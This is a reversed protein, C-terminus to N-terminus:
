DGKEQETKRPEIKNETKHSNFNNQNQKFNELITQCKSNFHSLIDPNENIVQEVSVDDDGIIDSWSECVSLNKRNSSEKETEKIREKSKIRSDSQNGPARDGQNEDPPIQASAAQPSSTTTAVVSASSLPQLSATNEQITEYSNNVENKLANVLGAVKPSTPNKSKVEKIEDLRRKAFELHLVPEEEQSSFAVRIVEQSRKLSYLINEPGVNKQDAYTAASALLLMVAIGSVAGRIFYKFASSPRTQLAGFRERAVSLFLIKTRDKFEKNSKYIEKPNM